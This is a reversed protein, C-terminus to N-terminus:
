DVIKPPKLSSSSLMMMSVTSGFSVLVVICTVIFTSPNDRKFVARIELLKDDLVCRESCSM